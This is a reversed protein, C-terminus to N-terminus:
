RRTIRFGVRPFHVCLEGVQPDTRRIAIEDADLAIVTGEVGVGDPKPAITVLDGPALGMPDHPDAKTETKPTAAAAVELAATDSMDGPYGHGLARVREEWENLNPFEAFFKDPTAKRDKLFWVLYYALADPLGPEKGLMFDRSSLRADMWGLQARVAALNNLNNTRLDNRDFDPGFYLPGRDAIFEPPMTDDMAALAVAVVDKFLPGDTWEAVGWAMGHAGGPFLTPTPHRRELERIICHTDCFIDAGIQMVPTLRYGGTLPLLNPKPPLRPIIVSRWHLEKM